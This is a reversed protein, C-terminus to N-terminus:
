SGHQQKLRGMWDSRAAAYGRGQVRKFAEDVDGTEGMAKLLDNMGGMGRQAILHEVFSLAALYYGGVGGVRGDALAKLQAPTLESGIRKGEMYQALGEQIDRPAVGRTRDAVFAHTLEHILTGDMDPTLSASLGGIPIRIRGDIGDYIGGSWAPAGSANYYAERSFLIVPIAGAPQHDLTSALTAYHRELVRLIERGVADHTDGDYRVHFHSLQQQTMGREDDMGKRIRALLSRTGDDDQVDLAAQLADAAEANRDQRMLAYGLGLLADRQRPDLSLASRAAAEAGTWDEAELMVQVLVLRTRMSAPQVAIARQLHAAAPAFLRSTREQVAKAVLVGELLDRLPDEGPFRAFLDEAFEVDAAYIAGRANLRQVLSSAKAQDAQPVGAAEPKLEEIPPPAEVAALSPPPEAEGPMAMPAVAEAPAEAPPPAAPKRAKVALGAGVLLVAAILAFPWRPRAPEEDEAEIRRGTPAAPRPERMKAFVIGCVPCVAEDTTAHGCRPCIVAPRALAHGDM